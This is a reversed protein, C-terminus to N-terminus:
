TRNIEKLHLKSLLLLGTGILIAVIPMTIAASGMVERSDSLMWIYFTQALVGSLSVTFFVSAIQKRALLSIAGLLGGFVEAAFVITVWTPFSRYHEIQESPM